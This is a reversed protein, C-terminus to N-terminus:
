TLLRNHLLVFGDDMFVDLLKRFVTSEGNAVGDIPVLTGMLM